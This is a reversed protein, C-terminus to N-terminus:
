RNRERLRRLADSIARNEPLAQDSTLLTELRVIENPGGVEALAGLALDLRRLSEAIEGELAPADSTESFTALDALRSRAARVARANEDAAASLANAFADGRSLIEDRAAQSQASDPSLLREVITEDPTREAPGSGGCGSLALCLVLTMVLTRLLSM